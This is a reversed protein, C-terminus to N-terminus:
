GPRAGVGVLRLQALREGREAQRDEPRQPAVVPEHPAVAVEPEHGTASCGSATSALRPARAAATASRM